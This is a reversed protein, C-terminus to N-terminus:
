HKKQLFYLFMLRSLLRQAFGEIEQRDNFEVRGPNAKRVEDVLALFLRAYQSYFRKTIAEVNFAELLRGVIVAPAPTPSELAIARLVDFAHRTPRDPELVLRLLRPQERTAGPQPVVFVVQEFVGANDAGRVAVIFLWNSVRSLLNAGIDRLLKPSVSDVEFLLVGLRDRDDLEHTWRDVIWHAAHVEGPAAQPWVASLPLPLASVSYGLRDFLRRLDTVTRARMLDAITLESSAMTETLPLAPTPVPAPTTPKVGRSTTTITSQALGTQLASLAQFLEFATQYRHAPDPQLLRLVLDDLQPPINWLRTPNATFMPSALSPAVPVPQKIEAVRQWFARNHSQDGQLLQYAEPLNTTLLRYLIMGVAYLDTRQDAKTLDDIQEPAAYPWRGMFTGVETLSSVAPSAIQALGFDGVKAILREVPKSVGGILEDEKTLFINQPKLDRHIVPEAKTHMFHLARTIQSAIDLVVDLSAAVFTELNESNVYEM